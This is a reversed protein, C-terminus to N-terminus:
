TKTDSQSSLTTSKLGDPRSRVRYLFRLKMFLSKELALVKTSSAFFALEMLATILHIRINVSLMFDM